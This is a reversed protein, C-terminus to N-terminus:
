GRALARRVMEAQDRSQQYETARFSNADPSVVNTTQNVVINRNGGSRGQGSEQLIGVPPIGAAMASLTNVGWNDVQDATFVYEGAHVVGAPQLRSGNGTYGGSAFGFMQIPPHGTDFGPVGLGGGGGGGFNLGGGIGGFAAKFIQMVLMQAALQILMKIISKVMDAFAEEATKTGSFIDDFFQTLAQAATAKLTEGLDKFQADINSLNIQNLEGAKQKMQELASVQGQLEQLRGGTAGGTLANSYNARAQALQQNLNLIEQQYRLREQAMADQQLIANSGFEDGGNQLRTAKAQALRSDIDQVKQQADLRKQEALFATDQVKGKAQQNQVDQIDLYKQKLRELLAIEADTSRNLGQKLTILDVLAKIADVVSKKYGDFETNLERLAAAELQEPSQDAYKDKVESLAVAVENLQEQLKQNKRVLEQEFNLQIIKMEAFQIENLKSKRQKLFEIEATYDRGGIYGSLSTSGGPKRRLKRPSAYDGTPETETEQDQIKRQREEILQAITQDLELQKKAYEQEKLTARYIVEMADRKGGDPEAAIAVEQKLREQEQKDQLRQSEIANKQQRYEDQRRRAQEIVKRAENEEKEAQKEQTQYTSAARGGQETTLLSKVSPDQHLLVIEVGDAFRVTTIWGGGGNDWEPKSRYVVPVKSTIKGGVPTGFDVGDHTPRGGNRSRHESTIPYSTLPKDDVMLRNLVEDSVRPRDPNYARSYRVDLHPGSSRGTNGTIGLLVPAYDFPDREPKAPALSPRLAKPTPVEVGPAYQFPDRDPKPTPRDTLSSAATSVPVGRYGAPVDSVIKLTQSRDSTARVAKYQNSFNEPSDVGYYQQILRARTEELHRDSAEKQLKRSLEFSQNTLNITGRIESQLRKFENLSGQLAAQSSKLSDDYAKSVQEMSKITERYGETRYKITLSRSSSM